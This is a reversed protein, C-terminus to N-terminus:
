ADESERLKRSLVLLFIGGLLWTGGLAGAWLAGSGTYPLEPVSTGMPATRREVGTEPAKVPASQPSASASPAPRRWIIPETGTLPKDTYRPHDEGGGDDQGGPSGTETVPPRTPNDKPDSEEGQPPGQTENPTEGDAPNGSSTGESETSTTAPPACPGSGSGAMAVGAPALTLTVAALAAITKGKM